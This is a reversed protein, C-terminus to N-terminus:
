TSQKNIETNTITTNYESEYSFIVVWPLCDIKSLHSARDYLGLIGKVGYKTKFYEESFVKLLRIIAKYKFTMSNNEIYFTYSDRFIQRDFNPIQVSYM